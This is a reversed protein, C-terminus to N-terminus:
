KNEKNWNQLFIEANETNSVEIRSSTDYQVEYISM